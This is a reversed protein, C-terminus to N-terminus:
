SWLLMEASISIRCIKIMTYCICYWGFIVCQIKNLLVYHVGIYTPKIPLSFWCIYSESTVKQYIEDTFKTRFQNVL